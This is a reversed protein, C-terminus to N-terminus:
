PRERKCRALRRPDNSSVTPLCRPSVPLARPRRPELAQFDAVSLCHMAAGFRTAPDAEPSHANVARLGLGAGDGPGGGTAAKRSCM